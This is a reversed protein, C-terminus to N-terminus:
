RTCSRAPASSCGPRSSATRSCTSSASRTAPRASASPWSCTASRASPRTPSSRRSTTTPRASSAATSCRSRASSSCSRARPRRRPRLDPEGPRHPLRRRDGDDGRPDPRLGADPGGDRGAALGAAPVSREQRLRRAPAAAGHRDLTAKTLTGAAAAGFVNAFNTSGVTAFMLMIALALGVDGVRNMYFAKNAATAASSRGIYFQILLYSSLGVMEWGLYLALFSNGLVLVLM